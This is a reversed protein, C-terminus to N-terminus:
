GVLINDDYHVLIASAILPAFFNSLGASLTYISIAAGKHNPELITFLATMPVFAAVFIGLLVASVITLIFGYEPFLTPVYYFFLTSLAMGICGFWRMQKMWNIHDSMVGWFINTFITVFFFVAWVELWQTLTIGLSKLILPMIIPFGFLSITNVIRIYSCIFINKDTFLITVARTLETLKDKLPLKSKSTDVSINRMSIIAILGGVTVWLTSFWLTRTEGVLTSGNLAADNFLSITISPLYSGLVGMGISYVSWFGGMAGSVRSAPVTQM